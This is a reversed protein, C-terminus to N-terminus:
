EVRLAATPNTNAAQTAPVLAALTAVLLLLGTSVSLVIPDYSEVSCLRSSILLGLALCDGAFALLLSEVLSQRILRLRGADLAARV